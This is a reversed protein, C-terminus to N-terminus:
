EAARSRQPKHAILCENRQLVDILQDIQERSHGSGLQVRLRATNYPVAPYKIVDIHIREARLIAALQEAKEEEGIHIPVIPTATSLLNYGFKAVRDVFYRQNEWLRRRREPEDNVVDIAASTAMAQDPTVPTTFGYAPSALRLMETVLSNTAIFGGITGYAKSLTGMYIIRESAIGFHEMIGAGNAGLVGTGHADDVYLLADHREALALLDPLPAIDGDQSFVGDTVIVKTSADSARLMKELHHMDLHHYTVRRAGSARIGERISVHNFADSFYTCIYNKTPRYGLIRAYQGTRPLTSLAGVNALYGTAFTIASSKGKSHALKRELENYVALNGTLLRSECNGVGYTEIGRIAAARVRPHAALALYNNSSFSVQERAEIMFSPGPLSDVTGAHYPLRWDFWQALELLESFAVQERATLMFSPEPPGDATEAHHPLRWRFQGASELLEDTM